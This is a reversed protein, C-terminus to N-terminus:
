GGFWWPHEGIWSWFDDGWRLALVGCVLAGCGAFLALLYWESPLFLPITAGGVVAGFLAGCGFLISKGVVDLPEQM